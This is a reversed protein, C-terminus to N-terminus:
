EEEVSLNWFAGCGHADPGQGRHAVVCTCVMEIIPKQATQRQADRVTEDVHFYEMADGCRPCIGRLLYGGIIERFEFKAALEAFEDKTVEEYRLPSSHATNPTPVDSVM